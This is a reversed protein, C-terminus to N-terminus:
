CRGSRCKFGAVGASLGAVSDRTSFTVGLGQARSGMFLGSISASDISGTQGNCACQWTGHNNRNIGFGVFGSGGILPTGNPVPINYTVDNVKYSVGGTISRALFDVTFSGTLMVGTHGQGDSPGPGGVYDYEITGRLSSATALATPPTLNGYIFHVGTPPSFTQGNLLITGGDWRGWAMGGDGPIGGAEKIPVGQRAGGMGGQLFAFGEFEKTRADISIVTGRGGEVQARDETPKAWAVGVGLGAGLVAVNGSEDRIDTAGIPALPNSPLPRIDRPDDKRPDLSGQQGQGPQRPPERGAVQQGPRDRDQRARADLRDRLFAPRGVLPRPQTKPDSVFFAEDVGFETTGGDNTVAIRGEQVLGYDGDPAPSGDAEFCDQQCAVLTFSTGRIGVTAKPGNVKYKDRQTKGILGTITRFGGRVLSFVAQSFLDERGAFNYNDVRFVTNARLAVIAEDSFRIQANSEAGVRIVDKSEIASGVALPEVKGSREVSVEGVAMIVRGAQAHTLGAACLLVALLAATWGSFKEFRSTM